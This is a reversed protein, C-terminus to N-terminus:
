KQMDLKFGSDQLNKISAPLDFANVRGILLDSGEKAPLYISGGNPSTPVTFQCELAQLPNTTDCSAASATGPAITGAQLQPTIIVQPSPAAPQEQAFAPALGAFALCAFPLVLRM